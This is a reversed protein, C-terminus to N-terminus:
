LAKKWSTFTPLSFEPLIQGGTTPVPVNIPAVSCVNGSLVIGNIGQSCGIEVNEIM